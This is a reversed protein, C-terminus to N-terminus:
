LESQDYLITVIELTHFVVFPKVIIEENNISAITGVPLDPPFIGGIGSTVLVDGVEPSRKYHNTIMENSQLHELTMVSSGSGTAICNEGTELIKVPVRSAMDTILMIRLLRNSSEIVRGVLGKDSLAVNDKQLIIKDPASVIIQADYFGIPSGYVRTTVKKFDKPFTFNVLPSLQDIIKQTTILELKAQQLEAEIKELAKLRENLNKRTLFWHEVNCFFGGIKNFFSNIGGIPQMIYSSFHQLSYHAYPSNPLYWYSASLYLIVATSFLVLIRRM